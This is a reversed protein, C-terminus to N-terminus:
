WSVSVHMDAILLADKGATQNVNGAFHGPWTAMCLIDGYIQSPSAITLPQVRTIERRKFDLVHLPRLQRGRNSSDGLAESSCAEDVIQELKKNREAVKVQM